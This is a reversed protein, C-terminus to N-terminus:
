LDKLGGKLLLTNLQRLFDLLSEGCEAELPFNALDYIVQEEVRQIRHWYPAM